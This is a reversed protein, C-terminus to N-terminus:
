MRQIRGMDKLGQNMGVDDGDGSWKGVNNYGVGHMAGGVNNRRDKGVM